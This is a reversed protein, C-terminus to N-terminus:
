GAKGQLIIQNYHNIHISSITFIATQQVSEHHLQIGQLTSADDVKLNSSGYEEDTLM